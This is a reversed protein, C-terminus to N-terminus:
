EFSHVHSIITNQQMPLQANHVSAAGRFMTEAKTARSWFERIGEVHSLRLTRKREELRIGLLVYIKETGERTRRM